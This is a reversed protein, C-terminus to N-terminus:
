RPSRRVRAPVTRIVKTKKPIPPVPPTGDDPEIPNRGASKLADRIELEIRCCQVISKLRRAKKELQSFTDLEHGTYDKPNDAMDQMQSEIRDAKEDHAHYMRRLVKPWRLHLGHDRIITEEWEALNSPRNKTVDRFPIAM